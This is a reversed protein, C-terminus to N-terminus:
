DATRGQADVALLMAVHMDITGTTLDAFQKRLSAELSSTLAEIALVLDSLNLGIGTAWLTVQAPESPPNEPGHILPNASSGGLQGPMVSEAWFCGPEKLSPRIWSLAGLAPLGSALLREIDSALHQISHRLGDVQATARLFRQKSPARNRYGPMQMVLCRLRHASDVVSWADLM